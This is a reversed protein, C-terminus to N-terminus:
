LVFGLVVQQCIDVFFHDFFNDLCSSLDILKRGSLQNLAILTVKYVYTKTNMCKSIDDLSTSIRYRELYADFAVLYKHAFDKFNYRCIHINAKFVYTELKNDIKTFGTLQNLLQADFYKLDLLFNM